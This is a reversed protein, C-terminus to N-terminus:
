LDGFADMSLPTLSAGAALFEAVGELGAVPALGYVLRAVEQKAGTHM